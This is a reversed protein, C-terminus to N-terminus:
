ICLLALYNSQEVHIDNGGDKGVEDEKPVANVDVYYMQNSTVCHQYHLLPGLMDNNTKHRKTTCM